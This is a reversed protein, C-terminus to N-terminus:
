DTTVGKQQREMMSDLEQIRTILNAKKGNKLADRAQSLKVLTDITEQQGIGKEQLVPLASRYNIEVENLEHTVDDWAGRDAAGRAKELDHRALLLIPSSPYGVSELLAFLQQRLTFYDQYSEAADGRDLASQLHKIRLGVWGLSRKAAPSLSPYLEKLQRRIEAIRDRARDWNCAEIEEEVPLLQRVIAVTQASEPSPPVQRAAVLLIGLILLLTMGSRM